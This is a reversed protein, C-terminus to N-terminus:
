IAGELFGKHTLEAPADVTPHSWDQRDLSKNMM